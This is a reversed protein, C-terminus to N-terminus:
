VIEFELNYNALLDCTFHDSINTDSLELNYFDVFEHEFYPGAHWTGLNLKIFCNGPIRFANITEPDVQSLGRESPPAVAIAWEKGELAGLCQTCRTHRTIYHFKSGREALRMIYLRPIGGQLDLQADRNSYSEGDTSAYIVQGFPHFNEESVLQAKLQRLAFEPM